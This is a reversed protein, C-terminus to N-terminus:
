TNTSGKLQEKYQTAKKNSCISKIGFNEQETVLTKCQISDTSSCAIEQTQKLLGDETFKVLVM